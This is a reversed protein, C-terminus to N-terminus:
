KKIRWKLCVLFQYPALFPILLLFGIIGKWGMTSAFVGKFTLEKLTEGILNKFQKDSM